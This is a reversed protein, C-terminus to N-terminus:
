VGLHKKVGLATQYKRQTSAFLPNSLCLNGKCNLALDISVVTYTGFFL